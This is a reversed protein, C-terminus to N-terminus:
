LTTYFKVDYRVGLDGESKRIGYDPYDREFSKATTIECVEKGDLGLMTLVRAVTAHNGVAIDRYLNVDAFENENAKLWDFGPTDDRGFVEIRLKKKPRVTISLTRDKKLVCIDKSSFLGISRVEETSIKVARLLYVIIFACGILSAIMLPYLKGPTEISQNNIICVVFLFVLPLVTLFMALKTAFIYVKKM